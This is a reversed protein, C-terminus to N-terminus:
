AEVRRGVFMGSHTAWEWDTMREFSDAVTPQASMGPPAYQSKPYGFRKAHVAHAHVEAVRKASVREGSRRYWIIKM